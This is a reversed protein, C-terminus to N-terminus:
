LTHFYRQIDKDKGIIYLSEGESFRYDSDLSVNVADKSKVAIINVKFNKRVDIEGISKGAWDKPMEIEFVAFDKSVQIYDLVNESSWQIATLNGMSKEPYVVADAGNRLLFNEEHDRAARAVVKKAGLEKLYSTTELSALFDNGIAVICVDFNAVGLSGLFKQNTADGIEANTVYPLAVKVREENSDVGLVQIHVEQLKKAIHLGFRGLGIILIQKM